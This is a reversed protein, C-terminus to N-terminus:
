SERWSADLESVADKYSIFQFDKDLCYDVFWCYWLKRQRFNDSFYCDHFIINFYEIGEQLAENILEETEEKAQQLSRNQWAANKHFLYGDMIHIPFEWLDGAKHPNGFEFTNSSFLYGASGLAHLIQPALKADRAGTGIDHFRIGFSDTGSCKKFSLYEKEIERRDDLAIGHVGADFNARRIREIWWSAKELPYGLQRGNNVAVFFTSPIRNQRDFEMMSDINQWQNGLISTLRKMLESMACYGFGFEILNRIMFKPIIFDNNHEWATIHDVDHSIIIKM